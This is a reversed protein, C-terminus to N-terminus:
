LSIKPDKKNLNIEKIVKGLLNTLDNKYDEMSKKAVYDSILKNMNGNNVFCKIDKLESWLDYNKKIQKDDLNKIFKEIINKKKDNSEM